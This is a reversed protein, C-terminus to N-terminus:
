IISEESFSLVLIESYNIGTFFHIPVESDASNEPSEKMISSPLDEKSLQEMISM